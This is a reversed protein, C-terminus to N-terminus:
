IYDYCPPTCFYLTFNPFNICMRLCYIGPRRGKGLKLLGLYSALEVCLGERDSYGPIWCHTPVGCLGGIDSYEMIWLYESWGLVNSLLWLIVPDWSVRIM